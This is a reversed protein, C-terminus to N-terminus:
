VSSEITAKNMLDNVKNMIHVDDHSSDNVYTAGRVPKVTATPTQKGLHESASITTPTKGPKQGRVIDRVNRGVTQVQQVVKKAKDVDKKIDKATDIFQQRKAPDSIAQKFGGWISRDSDRVPLTKFKSIYGKASGKGAKILGNAHSRTQKIISNGVNGIKRAGGILSNIRRTGSGIGRAFRAGGSLLSRGAFRAGRSILSFM